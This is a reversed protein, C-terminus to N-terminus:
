SRVLIRPFVFDPLRTATLLMVGVIVLLCYDHCNGIYPTVDSPGTTGCISGIFHAKKLGFSHIGMFGYLTLTLGSFTSIKKLNIQAL